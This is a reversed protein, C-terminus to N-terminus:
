TRVRTVRLVFGVIGKMEAARLDPSLDVATEFLDVVKTWRASDLIHSMADHAIAGFRPYSM